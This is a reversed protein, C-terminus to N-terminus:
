ISDEFINVHEIILPKLTSYNHQNQVKKVTYQCLSIDITMILLLCCLIIYLTARMNIPREFAYYRTSSMLQLIYSVYAVYTYKEVQHIRSSMNEICEM